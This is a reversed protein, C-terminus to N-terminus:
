PYTCVIEAGKNNGGRTTNQGYVLRVCKQLMILESIEVYVRMTSRVLSTMWYARLLCASCLTQPSLTDTFTQKPADWIVSATKTHVRTM